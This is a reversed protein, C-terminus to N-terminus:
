ILLFTCKCKKHNTQCKNELQTKNCLEIVPPKRTQINCLICGGANGIADEETSRKRIDKDDMESNIDEDNVVFLDDDIAVKKSIVNSAVLHCVVLVILVGIQVKM